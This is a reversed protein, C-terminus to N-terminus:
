AEDVGSLRRIVDGALMYGMIPPVYSMTGLTSAKDSQAAASEGSGQGALERPHEPSYVVDLSEIGRVRCERRMVRCVPCIRTDKIDAIELRTPDLRNAGGMAAVLPLGEDQCWQAIALKQSITDIADVVYDPRPLASLQEAADEKALYTHRSTVRCGPNIDAIMRTMAETKPLGITSTFALAQRNINSLEVEDRDVLVLHGVGGRALAEACASGVGGLGVVMVTAEALRALGDAGLLLESRVFRGDTAQESPNTGQASPTTSTAENM